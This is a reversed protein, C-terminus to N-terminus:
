RPVRLHEVVEPEASTVRADAALTAALALIDQGAGAQLYAVGLQPFARYVRAGHATAVTPADAARALRVRITGPLYGLQGTGTNLVVPYAATDNRTTVVAGTVTAASGRYFLLDGRRELLDTTTLRLRGAAHATIEGRPLRAARAAPLVQYSQDASTFATGRELNQLLVARQEPAIENQTERFPTQALATSAVIATIIALLPRINM